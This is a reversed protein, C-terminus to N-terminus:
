LNLMRVLQSSIQGSDIEQKSRRRNRKVKKVAYSPPRQIASNFEELSVRLQDVSEVFPKVATLLREPDPGDALLAPDPLADILSEIRSFAQKLSEVRSLSQNVRQYAPALTAQQEDIRQSVASFTNAFLSYLDQVDGQQSGSALKRCEDYAIM